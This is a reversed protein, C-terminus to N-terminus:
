RVVKKGPDEQTVTSATLRAVAASVSSGFIRLTYATRSTGVQRPEGTSPVTRLCCSTEELHLIFFDQAPRCRSLCLTIAWAIMPHQRLRQLHPRFSRCLALVQESRDLRTQALHARACTSIKWSGIVRQIRSAQPSGISSTKVDCRFVARAGDFLEDGASTASGGRFFERQTGAGDEPPERVCCSAIASGELRAASAILGGRGRTVVWSLYQIIISSGCFM